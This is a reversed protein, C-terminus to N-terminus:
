VAIIVTLHSIRERAVRADSTRSSTRLDSHWLRVVGNAEAVGFAQVM